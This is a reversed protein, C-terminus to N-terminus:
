ASYAYETGIIIKDEFLCPSSGIWDAIKKKWIVRGTDAKIRYLYGNYAGFILSDEYVVPSSLIAKQSANPITTADKFINYEWVTNGTKIEVCMFKGENTGFFINEKYIVPSSRPVSAQWNNINKIKWITKAKKKIGKNHIGLNDLSFLYEVKIGQKILRDYGGKDFNIMFIIAEIPNKISDIVHQMTKGSHLIDDFLIVSEKKNINGEIIKQLGNYKPKKRVIFGNYGKLVLSSIVPNAAIEPGGINKSKFMNLKELLLPILLNLAKTSYFIKRNDIIWEAPAGNPRFGENFHLAKNIILQRLSEWNDM